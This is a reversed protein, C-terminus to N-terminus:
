GHDEETNDSSGETNTASLTPTPSQSPGYSSPMTAVTLNRQMKRKNPVFGGQTLQRPPQHWQRVASPSMSAATLGAASSGSGSPRLYLPAVYAKPVIDDYLQPFSEFFELSINWMRIDWMQANYADSFIYRSNLGGTTTIAQSQSHAAVATTPSSADPGLQVVALEQAYPWNFSFLSVISRWLHNQKILDTEIIARERLGPWPLLDIVPDHEWRRQTPRPRYWPPLESIPICSTVYLFMLHIARLSILRTSVSSFSFIVGDLKSVTRLIPCCLLSSPSNSNNDSSFDLVSPWGHLVGRILADQTLVTDTVVLHRTSSNVASRAEHVLMNFMDKVLPVSTSGAALPSTAAVEGPLLPPPQITPSADIASSEHAAAQVYDTSEPTFSPLTQLNDLTSHFFGSSAPAAAVFSASTSHVSHQHFHYAHPAFDHQLQRTNIETRELRQWEEHELTKVKLTLEEVQKKLHEVTDRSETNDRRRKAKSIRDVERKRDRQAKSLVRGSAWPKAGATELDPPTPQQVLGDLMTPSDITAM